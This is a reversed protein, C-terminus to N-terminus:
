AEDSQRNNSESVYVKLLKSYIFHRYVKVLKTNIKFTIANHIGFTGFYIMIDAIFKSIYLLHCSLTGLTLKKNM